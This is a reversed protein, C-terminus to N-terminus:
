LCHTLALPKGTVRLVDVEADKKKLRYVRKSSVAMKEQFYLNAFKLIPTNSELNVQLTLNLALNEAPSVEQATVM